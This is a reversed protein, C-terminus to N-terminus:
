EGNWKLYKKVYGLPFVHIKKGDSDNFFIFASIYVFLFGIINTSKTTYSETINSILFLMLFAFCVIVEKFGFNDNKVFKKMILYFIIGYLVVGLFGGQVVIDIYGNHADEPFFNGMGQIPGFLYFNEKTWFGDLGYGFWFHVGNIHTLAFDWITLRGTLSLFDGYISIGDHGSFLDIVEINMAILLSAILFEAALITIFAKKYLYNSKLVYYVLGFAFTILAVLVGTALGTRSGTNLTVIVASVLAFLSYLQIARDRSYFMLLMSSVMLLAGVRGLANKQDYIGKWDGEFKGAELGIHPLFESVAINVILLLFLSVVLTELFALLTLKNAAFAAVVVVFSYAIVKIVETGVDGVFVGTVLMYVFLAPFLFVWPSLVIGRVFILVGFYALIILMLSYQHWFSLIRDDINGGSLFFWGGLFMLTVNIKKM